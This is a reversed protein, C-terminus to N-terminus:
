HLVSSPLESTQGWQSKRLTMVDSAYKLRYKESWLSHFYKASQQGHKTLRVFFLPARVRRCNLRPSLKAPVRQASLFLVSKWNHIVRGVPSLLFCNNPYRTGVNLM